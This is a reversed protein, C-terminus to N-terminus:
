RKEEERREKKWKPLKEGAQTVKRGYPTITLNQYKAHTKLDCFFTSVFNPSGGAGQHEIKTHTNNPPVSGSSHM